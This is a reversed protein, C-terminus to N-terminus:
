KAAVAKITQHDLRALMEAPPLYGGLQMGDAAYIAPTGDVGIKRGLEYDMTIPNACTRKAVPRDAKADTM